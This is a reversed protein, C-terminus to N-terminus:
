AILSLRNASKEKQLNTEFHLNDSSSAINMVLFNLHDDSSYERVCKCLINTGSYIMSIQLM